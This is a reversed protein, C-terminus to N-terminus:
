HLTGRRAPEGVVNQVLELLAAKFNKPLRAFLNQLAVEAVAAEPAAEDLGEFFWGLPVDLARAALWLDGASIQMEGTEWALVQGGSAGMEYGLDWETKGLDLRRARLRAGIAADMDFLEDAAEATMEDLWM